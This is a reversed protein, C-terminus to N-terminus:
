ATNLAGIGLASKTTISGISRDPSALNTIPDAPLFKDQPAITPITTPTSTRTPTKPPTPHIHRFFFFPFPSPPLTTSASIVSSPGVISTFFQTLSNPVLVPPCPCATHLLAKRSLPRVSSSSSPPTTLSIYAGPCVTVSSYAGCLLSMVTRCTLVSSTSASPGDGIKSNGHGSCLCLCIHYPINLGYKMCACHKKDRGVGLAIICETRRGM